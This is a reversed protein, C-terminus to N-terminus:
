KGRLTRGTIENIAKGEQLNKLKHEIYMLFVSIDLDTILVDDEWQNIYEYVVGDVREDLEKSIKFEYEAM